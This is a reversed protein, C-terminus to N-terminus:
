YRYSMQVLTEFDYPKPGTLPINGGVSLLLREGLGVHVGATMDFIDPLFLQSQGNLRNSLPTTLHAELVPAVSRIMGGNCGYMNYGFQIDNFLVTTDKPDTPIVLSTFGQVFFGGANLLYGVYPQILTDSFSGDVTPIAPGTPLTLVLGTSLVNGNSHNNFLAYKFVLSMDGFDSSNVSGDGSTQFFPLRMGVSANGDLFTKEFGLLERNFTTSRSLLNAGGPNTGSLNDFNNYTFIVRDEPRAAAGDAMKFGSGARALVPDTVTVVTLGPPLSSLVKSLASSNMPQGYTCSSSSFTGSSSAGSAAQSNVLSILQNAHALPSNIPTIVFRASSYGGFDGMMQPAMAFTEGLGAGARAADFDVEPATTPAEV